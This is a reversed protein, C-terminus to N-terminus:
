QKKNRVEQVVNGVAAGVIAGKLPKKKSVAAGVVAGIVTGRTRSYHHKKKTKALAAEAPMLMACSLLLAQMRTAKM